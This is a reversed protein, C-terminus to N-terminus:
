RSGFGCAPAALPDGGGLIENQRARNPGALRVQRDGQADLRGFLFATDQKRARRIEDPLEQFGPIRALEGSQLLAQEADVHEDDVLDAEHRKLADATLQEEIQDGIAVFSPGRDHRRIKCEGFPDGHKGAVLLQRRRPEIAQRM